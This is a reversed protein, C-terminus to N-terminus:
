DTHTTSVKEIRFELFMGNLHKASNSDFNVLYTQVGRYPSLVEKIEGVYGRVKVKDGAFFKTM